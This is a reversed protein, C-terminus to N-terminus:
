IHFEGFQQNCAAVQILADLGGEDKDINGSVNLRGLTRCITAKYLQTVITVCGYLVVLLTTPPTFQRM